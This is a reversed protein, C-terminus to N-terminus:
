IILLPFHAQLIAFQLAGKRVQRVLLMTKLVVGVVQDGLVQLLLVRNTLGGLRVMVLVLVVVPSIEARKVLAVVVLLTDM